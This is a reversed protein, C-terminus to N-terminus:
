CDAGADRAGAVTGIAVAIPVAVWIIVACTVVIAAIARLAVRHPLPDHRLRAPADAANLDAFLPQSGCPHRASAGLYRPLLFCPRQRLIGDVVKGAGSILIPERWGTHALM